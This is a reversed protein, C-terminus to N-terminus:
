SPEPITFTLTYETPPQFILNLYVTKTVPDVFHTEVGVFEYGEDILGYIEEDTM